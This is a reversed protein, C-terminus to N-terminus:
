FQQGPPRPAARGPQPPQGSPPEGEQQLFQEIEQLRELLEQREGSSLQEGQQLRKGLQRLCQQLQQRRVPPMPGGRQPRPQMQPQQRPPLGPGGLRQGGPQSRRRRLEQWQQPTLVMRLKLSMQSVSRMLDGRASVLRDITDKTKGENVQSEDMMDALHAEAKQVAARQEILRDRFERVTAKIQNHQDPTLNLDQAIPSDWWAFDDMAQGWCLAAAFVLLFTLRRM